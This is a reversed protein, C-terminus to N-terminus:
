LPTFIVDDSNKKIVHCAKGPSEYAYVGVCAHFSEPTRYITDTFGVTDYTCCNIKRKKSGEKASFVKLVINKNIFFCLKKLLVQLLTM